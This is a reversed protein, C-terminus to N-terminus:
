GRVQVENVCATKSRNTVNRNRMIHNNDPYVNHTKKTLIFQSIQLFPLFYAFLSSFVLLLEFLLLLLLSIFGFLGCGFLM